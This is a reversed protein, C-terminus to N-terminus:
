AKVRNLSQLVHLAKIQLSNLLGKVLKLNFCSLFLFYGINDDIVIATWDCIM